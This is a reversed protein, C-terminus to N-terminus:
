PGAGPVELGDRLHLVRDCAQAVRSDHTVVILALRQMRALNILLDTVHGATESDLSGTPEDALLVRPRHALARAIAVRQREGGSLQDPLKDAAPSLAVAQLLAQARARWDAEPTGDLVLPLAVNEAATLTAVLNHAQFIFGIERRRLLVLSAADLEALSRGDLLLSGSSPRDLSGLLNLLTSKGCGSPGVVALSEGSRVALSVGRLARVGGPYTKTLDTAELVTQEIGLQAEGDVRGGSALAVPDEAALDAASVAVPTLVGNAMRLVRDAGAAVAPNHTVLVVALGRERNLEALLSMVDEATESDLDGTLEDALLLRPANALAVALAARQLEGGSLRAPTHELRDGLGVRRLLQVARQRRDGYATIALEVNERASLFPILNDRQFVLGLGAQRARAREDEPMATLSRGGLLIVGASPASLGAAISLLTSKGSGSPGLIAVREGPKVVLCAGRLAVTQHGEEDYIKFVDRLEIVADAETRRTGDAAPANDHQASASM